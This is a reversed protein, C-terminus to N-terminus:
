FQEACWPATPWAFLRDLRAIADATGALKGARALLSARVGGLYLAGLTARDLTVDPSAM